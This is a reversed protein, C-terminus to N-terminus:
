SYQTLIPTFIIHQYARVSQSSLCTHSFSVAEIAKGTLGAFGGSFIVLLPALSYSAAIYDVAMASQSFTFSSLPVKIYDSAGVCVTELAGDSFCESVSLGSDCTMQANINKALRTGFILEQIAM